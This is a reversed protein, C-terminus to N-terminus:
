PDDSHLVVRDSSCAINSLHQSSHMFEWLLFHRRNSVMVPNWAIVSSKELAASHISLAAYLLRWASSTPSEPSPAKMCLHPCGRSTIGRPPARIYVTVFQTTWGHAGTPCRKRPVRANLDGAMLVWAGQMATATHQALQEHRM